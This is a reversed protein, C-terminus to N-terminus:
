ERARLTDLFAPLGLVWNYQENTDPLEVQRAARVLEWASEPEHGLIVLISAAITPSRGIGAFCHVAVGRGERVRAALELITPVADAYRPTLLNPIPFRIFDLGAASAHLACDELWNDRVEKEGLASVLTDVGSSRFFAMDDILYNGGRPRM